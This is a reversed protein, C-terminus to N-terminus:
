NIVVMSYTTSDPIRGIIGLTKKFYPMYKRVIKSALTAFNKKLSTTDAETPLVDKVNATKLDPLSPADEFNSLDIRDRVAYSQFYHLVQKHNDGVEERPKVTKDLNDGVLKFTPLCIAENRTCENATIVPLPLTSCAAPQLNLVDCAVSTQPLVDPVSPQHLDSMPQRHLNATCHANIPVDVHEFSRALPSCTTAGIDATASTSVLLGTESSQTDLDSHLESSESSVNLDVVRSPSFTDKSSDCSIPSFSPAMISDVDSNHQVHTSSQSLDHQLSPSEILPAQLQEQLPHM